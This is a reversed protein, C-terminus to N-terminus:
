SALDGLWLIEADQHNLKEFLKRDATILPLGLELAPAIYSADYATIGHELALDLSSLLLNGSSLPLLNLSNLNRM